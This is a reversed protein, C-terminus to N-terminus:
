KRPRVSAKDGQACFFRSSGAGQDGEVADRGKRSANQVPGAPDVCVSSLARPYDGTTMASTRELVIQSPAGLEWGLTDGEISQRVPLKTPSTNATRTSVAAAM